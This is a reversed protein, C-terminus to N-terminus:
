HTENCLKLHSDRFSTYLERFLRLLIVTAEKDIVNNKM